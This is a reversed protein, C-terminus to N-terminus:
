FLVVVMPWQDICPLSIMLQSNLLAGKFKSWTPRLRLSEMKIQNPRKPKPRVTRLNRESVTKNNELLKSRVLRHIVRDELLIKYCSVGWHLRPAPHKFSMASPQIFSSISFHLSWCHQHVSKIEKYCSGRTRRKDTKYKFLSPMLLAPHTHMWCVWDLGVNCICWTLSM